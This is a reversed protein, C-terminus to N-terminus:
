WRPKVKELDAWGRAFGHTYVSNGPRQMLKKSIGHNYGTEWIKLLEPHRKPCEPYGLVADGEDHIGCYYCKEDMVLVYRESL